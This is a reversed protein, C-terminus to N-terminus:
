GKLPQGNGELHRRVWLHGGSRDKTDGSERGEKEIRAEKAGVTTFLVTHEDDVKVERKKECSTDSGDMYETPEVKSVYALHSGTEIIITSHTLSDQLCSLHEMFVSENLPLVVYGM